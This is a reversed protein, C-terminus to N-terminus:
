AQGPPILSDRSHAARRVKLTLARTNLVFSLGQAHYRRNLAVLEPEWSAARSEATPAALTRRFILAAPVFAALLAAAALGVGFYCAQVRGPLDVKATLLLLGLGVLALLLLADIAKFVASPAHLAPRSREVLSQFADILEDFEERSLSNVFFDEDYLTKAISSNGFRMPVVLVDSVARERRRLFSGRRELLFEREAPM